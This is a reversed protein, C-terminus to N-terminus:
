KDLIESRSSRSYGTLILRSHDDQNGTLIHIQAPDTGHQDNQSENANNEGPEQVNKIQGM